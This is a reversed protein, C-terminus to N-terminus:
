LKAPTAPKGSPQAQGAASPQVSPAPLKARVSPMPAAYEAMPPDVLRPPEEVGYAPAAPPVPESRDSATSQPGPLRTGQSAECGLAGLGLAIAVIPAGVRLGVPLTGLTAGQRSSCRAADLRQLVNALRARVDRENM